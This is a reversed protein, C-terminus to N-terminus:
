NTSSTGTIKRMQTRSLSQDIIEKCHKQAIKSRPIVSAKYFSNPFIDEEDINQFPKRVISTIEEMLTQNLKVLPAM